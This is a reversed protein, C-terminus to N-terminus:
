DASIAYRSFHHITIKLKRAQFDIDEPLQEVYKGSYDIYYLKANEIDLDKWSLWVEAPRLFVCGSPGFTYVLENQLSDFEAKWTLTVDSGWPISPPPVLSNSPFQFSSGNTLNFKAGSYYDKGGWLSVTYEVYQPYTPNSNKKDPAPGKQLVPAAPSPVIAPESTMGVITDEKESFCGVLGSGLVFLTLVLGIARIQWMKM